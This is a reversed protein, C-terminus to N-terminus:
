LKFICSGVTKRAELARHAVQVENLKFEKFIIPKLVGQGLMEFVENASLVLEMRNEKYTFLVPKTLFNSKKALISIDFPPVAGSSQGYSVMLGFNSLCEISNLFTDKGIADYVVPVGVGNTIEKVKAVFDESALNIVYDCGNRKAIKVKEENGVTGIVKAKYAKAMQAMLGGVGGAASHILITMEPRVFFTRRLLYHATMGKALTAAALEDSVNGPIPVLYDQHIVRREAYAGGVATAYAVRDGIHFAEVDEGVEEVVGCAEYGPIFPITPPQIAGSRHYTDLFNIGIARHRIVVENNKPSADNIDVLSLVEPGGTEKIVVAKSM